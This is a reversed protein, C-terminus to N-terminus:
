RLQVEVEAPGRQVFTVPVQGQERRGVRIEKWFLRLAERRDLPSMDEWVDRLRFESASVGAEQRALGLRASAADRELRRAKVDDAWLDGLADRAEPALVQQLRKEATALESELDELAPAQGRTLMADGAVFSQLVSLRELTPASVGARQTCSRNTCRYYDYRKPGPAKTSRPTLSYGCASCRALGTLLWPRRGRPSRSGPRAAQAAHWLPEDVIAGADHESVLDGYHLRGTAYLRNKVIAPVSQRAWKRGEPRPAHEDLYAALVNRGTGAVWLEFLRRIAPGATPDVELTRDARLRYGVPTPGVPIGHLIAREKATAFRAGAQSRYLKAVQLLMGFTFEGTPSDIADPIDPTLIVGGAKTVRKVLADGHSPERSLRDLSYAAIGALEGTEIAELLASMAPRKDPHTAGSVDIDEFVPGPLYGKARALQAAREAQERPSHFRAEDRDGKRSVRAYLGITASVAMYTLTAAKPTLALVM